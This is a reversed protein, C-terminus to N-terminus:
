AAENAAAGGVIRLLERSRDNAAVFVPRESDVNKLTRFVIRPVALKAQRADVKKRILCGCDDRGPISRDPPNRAKRIWLAIRKGPLPDCSSQKLRQAHFAGIFFDVDDAAVLDNPEVIKVAVEFGVPVLVEVAVMLDGLVKM